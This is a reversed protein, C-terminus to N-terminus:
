FSEVGRTVSTVSSYDVWVRGAGELATSPQAFTRSPFPGIRRITAAAVAVVRDTLALGDQTYTSHITVNIPAGSANNVVLVVNGADIIDNAVTPATLGEILGTPVFPQTTVSVRPM